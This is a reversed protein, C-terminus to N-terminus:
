EEVIDAEIIRQVEESTIKIPNPNERAKQIASVLSEGLSQGKSTLDISHTPDSLGRSRRNMDDLIKRGRIFPLLTEPDIEEGINDISRDIIQWDKLTREEVRNEWSNAERIVKKELSNAVKRQLEEKEIDWGERKIRSHLNKIPIGYRSALESVSKYSGAQYECKVKLLVEVDTKPNNGAM